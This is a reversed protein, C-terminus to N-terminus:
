LYKILKKAVGIIEVPMEQIDQATYMHPYYESSNNLNLPSLLIGNSKKTVRKFTADSGNIRVVCDQGSNFECTKQFVVIDGENYQPEMSDGVIRLAFYERDNSMWEVPVEEYDVTFRDEVAELPMGAPIRGLVPIRVVQKKNMSDLKNNKSFNVDEILDAKTVNFYNAMLEIKDIHPYSHGNCWDTLTTYKIDLDNAMKTRDIDYIEMYRRLNKALVQKNGFSNDSM